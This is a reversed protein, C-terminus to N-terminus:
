APEVQVGLSGAGFSPSGFRSRAVAGTPPHPDVLVGGDPVGGTAGRPQSPAISVLRGGDTGPGLTPAVDASVPDVPTGRLQNSRGGTLASGGALGAPLARAGLDASVTAVTAM